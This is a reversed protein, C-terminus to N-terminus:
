VVSLDRLTAIERMLIIALQLSTLLLPRRLPVFPFIYDRAVFFITVDIWSYRGEGLTIKLSRYASFVSLLKQSDKVSTYKYSQM